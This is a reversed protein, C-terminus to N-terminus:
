DLIPIAAEGASQSACSNRVNSMAPVDAATGSYPCGLALLVCAPMTIGVVQASQRNAHRMCRACASGQYATWQFVQCVGCLASASDRYMWIRDREGLNTSPLFDCAPEKNNATGGARDGFTNGSVILFHAVAQVAGTRAINRPLSQFCHQLSLPSLQEPLQVLLSPWLRAEERKDIGHRRSIVGSCVIRVAPNSKPELRM